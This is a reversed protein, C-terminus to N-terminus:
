FFCLAQKTDQMKSLYKSDFDLHGVMVEVGTPKCCAYTRCAARTWIFNKFTIYDIWIWIWLLITRSDAILIPFFFCWLISFNGSVSEHLLTPSLRLLILVFPYFLLKILIFIVIFQNWGMGKLKPPFLFLLIPHFPISHMGDHEMGNWEFNSLGFLPVHNREMGNWEVGGSEMLGFMGELEHHCSQHVCMLFVFFVSVTETIIILSWFYFLFLFRLSFM